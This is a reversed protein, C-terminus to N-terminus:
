LHCRWALVSSCSIVAWSALSRNQSKLTLCVRPAPIMLRINSGDSYALGSEELFQEGAAELLDRGTNILGQGADRAGGVVVRNFGDAISGGISQLENQDYGLTPDFKPEAEPKKVSGLLFREADAIEYADLRESEYDM